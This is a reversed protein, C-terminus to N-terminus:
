CMTPRRRPTFSHGDGVVRVHRGERSYRGMAQALDDVNRPLYVARPTGRVSDSWNHWRTPKGASKQMAM